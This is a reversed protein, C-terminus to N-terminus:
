LELINSAQIEARLKEMAEGHIRWATAESIEMLEAIQGHTREAGDLGYYLYLARRERDELVGACLGDVFSRMQRRHSEKAELAEQLAELEQETGNFAQEDFSREPHRQIVPEDALGVEVVRTPSRKDQDAKLERVYDLLGFRAHVFLHQKRDSGGNFNESARWARIRAEQEADERETGLSRWFDKRGAEVDKLAHKVADEVGDMVDDSM